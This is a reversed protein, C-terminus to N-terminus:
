SVILQITVRGYGPKRRDRYLENYRSVPGCGNLGKGTVICNITDYGKGALGGSRDRYLPHIMVSVGAWHVGLAATDRYLKWQITVWNPCYGLDTEAENKKRM